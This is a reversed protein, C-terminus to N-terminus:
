AISENDDIPPDPLWGGPGNRASDVIRGRKYALGPCKRALLRMNAEMIREHRQRDPETFVCKFQENTSLQRKASLVANREERSSLVVKVLSTAQRASGGATASARAPTIRVTELINVNVGIQQFIESLGMVLTEDQPMALNRVVVNQDITRGSGGASRNITEGNLAESLKTELSEVRATITGIEFDFSEKLSDMKTGFEKTIDTKLTQFRKDFFTKLSEQSAQMDQVAKLITQLDVAKSDASAM